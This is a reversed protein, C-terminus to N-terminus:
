GVAGFLPGQEGSDELWALGEQRLAAELSEATVLEFSDTSDSLYEDEAVRALAADFAAEIRSRSWRARENVRALLRGERRSIEGDAAAMDIMARMLLELEPARSGIRLDPSRLAQGEILRATFASLGLYEEYDVLLRRQAPSPRGEVHAVACLAAYIRLSGERSVEADPDRVADDPLGREESDTRVAWSARLGDDDESM